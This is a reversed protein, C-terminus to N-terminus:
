IKRPLDHGAGCAVLSVHFNMDLDKYGYVVSSITFLNPQRVSHM